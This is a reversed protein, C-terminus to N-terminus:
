RGIFVSRLKRLGRAKPPLDHILISNIYSDSVKRNKQIGRRQLLKKPFLCCAMILGKLTPWTRAPTFLGKFVFAAHAVFFRPWMAPLLSRPTNKWLLWPLNKITQYTTFGKIRGSTSGAAHYAQAKPEYWVQWGALQARFSLDVDEYYAFFDEDFLGIKKFMQSRYLSAGGTAGFVLGPQDYNNVVEGRGRPFPLGWTTYVEGASDLNTQNAQVLKGTVIGVSTHVAMDDVLHKLWDKDAVADNNFLAIAEVGRNICDRIGANVGGAFGTNKPLKILRAAPFGQEILSVSNDVSGNDVVVIEAAVSQKQLSTLCDAILDAGNWNPIVIAVKM